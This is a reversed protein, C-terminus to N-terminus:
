IHPLWGSSALNYRRRWRGIGWENKEVMRGRSIRHNIHNAIVRAWRQYLLVTNCCFEIKLWWFWNTRIGGTSFRLITFCSSIISTYSTDVWNSPSIASAPDLFLQTVSDVILDLAVLTKGWLSMISWNVWYWFWSTLNKGSGLSGISVTCWQESVCFRTAMSGRDNLEFWSNQLQFYFKPKCYALPDM